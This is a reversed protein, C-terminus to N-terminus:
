AFSEMEKERETRLQRRWGFSGETVIADPQEVTVAKPIGLQLCMKWALADAITRDGHNERAGSPDDTTAQQSHEVKGQPNYRFKACEDIAPRSRNILRRGQLASKYEELLDLLSAPSANFGPADSFKPLMTHPMEVTNYYIERYGLELVRKAFLVGPGQQEWALLAGERDLGPFLKCIAIAVPVFKEGGIHPNAYELIKEGIQADIVSLCTATAGSGTSIDSGAGYKGPAFKGDKRPTRWLKLPGGFREVLEGGYIDGEWIPSHVYTIKLQRLIGADFFQVDSGQADIDLHMAVQRKNQRRVCESDYWPSRVGPFPGGTPSGDNIFPYDPPFPYDSKEVPNMNKDLYQVEKADENWQYLGQNKEPHMTWHMVFKPLDARQCLNYFETGIGYHTSIFLRPGTDATQGVIDHAQTQKGLEDLLVKGRGGVGSRGTSAYGVLTSDTAPYILNLVPLNRNKMDSGRTIWDPMYKHMHRVKWFLSNPDGANDVADKSHSVAMCQELEYYLCLWDVIILALWTAGMERSKEWLYDKGQVVWRDLTKYICDDQYGWTIFPGMKFGAPKLPNHQWTMCNAHFLIDEQCMRLVQWRFVKDKCALEYISYRQKLNKLTNKSLCKHHDAVGLM